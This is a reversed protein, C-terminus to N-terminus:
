GFPGRNAALPQQGHPAGAFETLTVVVEDLSREADARDRRVFAVEQQGDEYRMVNYRGDPQAIAEYMRTTGFRESRALIKLGIREFTVVAKV